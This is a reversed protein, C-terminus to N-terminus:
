RRCDDIVVQYVGAYSSDPLDAITDAENATRDGCRSGLHPDHRTKSADVISTAPATWTPSATTPTSRRTLRARPSVRGRLVGPDRRRRGAALRRDKGIGGLGDNPTLGAAALQDGYKAFTNPFFARVAHGFIIPDSVKMMTAKLHLSFLVDEAKARAVQATFFERLAAVRMVAADVVEGKLVPVSERLVTM